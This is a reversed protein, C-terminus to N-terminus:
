CKSFWICVPFIFYSDKERDRVWNFIMEFLTDTEHDTLLGGTHTTVYNQVLDTAWVQELIQTAERFLKKVNRKRMFGAPLWVTMQIVTAQLHCTIRSVKRWQYIDAPLDSKDDVLKPEAKEEAPVEVRPLGKMSLYKIAANFAERLDNRSDPPLIDDVSLARVSEPLCSFTPSKKQATERPLPFFVYTVKKPYSNRVMETVCVNWNTSCPEEKVELM